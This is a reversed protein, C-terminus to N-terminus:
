RPTRTEMLLRVIESYIAVPDSAASPKGYFRRSVEEGFMRDVESPSVGIRVAADHAIRKAEEAKSLEARSHALFEARREAHTNMFALNDAEVRRKLM